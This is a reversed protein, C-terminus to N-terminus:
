ASLSLLYLNNTLLAAYGFIVFAAVRLMRKTPLWLIFLAFALHWILKPISWWEGLYQQINQIIPNGEALGAALAANTSLIDLGGVLLMAVAMIRAVFVLNMNQRSIEARDNLKQFKSM